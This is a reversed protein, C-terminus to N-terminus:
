VAAFMAELRCPPALSLNHLPPDPGAPSVFAFLVSHTKQGFALGFLDFPSKEPFVHCDTFLAWM